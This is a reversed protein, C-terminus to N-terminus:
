NSTPVLATLAGTVVPALVGLLTIPSRLYGVDLGLYADQPGLQLCFGDPRSSCGACARSSYLSRRAGRRVQVGLAGTRQANANTVPAPSCLAVVVM